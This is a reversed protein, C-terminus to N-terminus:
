FVIFLASSIRAVLLLVSRILTSICIVLRYKNEERPSSLIGNQAISLLTKLVKKIKM